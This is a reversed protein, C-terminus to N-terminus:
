FAGPSISGVARWGLGWHIQNVNKGKLTQSIHPQEKLCDTRIIQASAKRAQLIESAGGRGGWAEIIVLCPSIERAWGKFTLVDLQSPPKLPEWYCFHSFPTMRPQRSRRWWGAPPPSVGGTQEECLATPRMLHWPLVDLYGVRRTGKRDQHSKGGGGERIRACATLSEHECRTSTQTTM